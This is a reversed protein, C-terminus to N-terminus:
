HEAVNAGPCCLKITHIQADYLPSGAPGHTAMCKSGELIHELFM